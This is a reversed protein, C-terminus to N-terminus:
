LDLSLYAVKTNPAVQGDREMIEIDSGVSHYAPLKQM